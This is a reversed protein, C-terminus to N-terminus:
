RSASRRRQKRKHLFGTKEHRPEYARITSTATTTTNPKNPLEACELNYRARDSIRAVCNRHLAESPLKCTSLACEKTLLLCWSKIATRVLKSRFHGGEYICHWDKLDILEKQDLCNVYAHVSNSIYVSSHM